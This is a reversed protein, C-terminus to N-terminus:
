RSRDAFSAQVFEATRVLSERAEPLYGDFLQWVHPMEPVVDESVV